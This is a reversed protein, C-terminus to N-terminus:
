SCIKLDNVQLSSIVSSCDCKGVTIVSATSELIKHAIKKIDNITVANLKAIMEEHTIPKQFIMTQNAIQESSTSSNESAMLLSAKFQAKTRNFEEESINDKM